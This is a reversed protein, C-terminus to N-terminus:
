EGGKSVDSSTASVEEKEIYPMLAEFRKPWDMGEPLDVSVDSLDITRGGAAQVIDNVYITHCSAVLEGGVYLAEDLSENDLVGIIHVPDSSLGDSYEQRGSVQVKGIM